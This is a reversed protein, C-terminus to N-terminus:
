CYAVTYFNVTFIYWNETLIDNWKKKEFVFRCLIFFKHKTFPRIYPLTSPNNGSEKCQLSNLHRYIHQLRCCISEGVYYRPLLCHSWKFPKLKSELTRNQERSTMVDVRQKFTIFENIWTHVKETLKKKIIPRFWLLSLIVFLLYTDKM